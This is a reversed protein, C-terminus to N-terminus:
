VLVMRNGRSEAVRDDALLGPAKADVAGPAGSDANDADVSVIGLNGDSDTAQSRNTSGAFSGSVSATRRM